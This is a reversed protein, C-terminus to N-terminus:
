KIFHGFQICIVGGVFSKKANINAIAKIGFSTQHILISNAKPFVFWCVQAELPIGVTFYTLKEYNNATFNGTTTQSLLKGRRVGGVAALGASISAYGSSIRKLRGYLIGADWLSEAPAIGLKTDESNPVFRVSLLAKGLEKYFGLDAAIGYTTAGIGFDLWTYHSKIKITDQAPLDVPYLAFGILCVFLINMQITKM